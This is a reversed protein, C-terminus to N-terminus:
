GGKCRHNMECKDFTCVPGGTDEYHVVHYRSGEKYVHQFYTGGCKQCEWEVNPVVIRELPKRM